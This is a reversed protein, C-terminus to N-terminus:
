KFLWRYIFEPIVQQRKNIVCGLLNANHSKMREVAAQAAYRRTKGAEIILIVGDCVASWTLSEPTDMPPMDLLVWRYHERLQQMRARLQKEPLRTMWSSDPSRGLLMDVRTLESAQVCAEISEDGTMFRALADGRKLGALAMPPTQSRYNADVILVSSRDDQQYVEGLIGATHTVISSVGAEADVNTFMVSRLDNASQYRELLQVLSGLDRRFSGTNVQNTGTSVLPTETGTDNDLKNLMDRYVSM